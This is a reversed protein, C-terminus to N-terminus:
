TLATEEDTEPLALIADVLAAFEGPPMRAPTVGSTQAQVTAAVPRGPRGPRKLLKGIERLAARQIPLNGAELADAYLRRQAAILDSVEADDVASEEKNLPALGLREREAQIEAALKKALKSMNASHPNGNGYGAIRGASTPGHGAACASVFKAQRDNLGINDRM